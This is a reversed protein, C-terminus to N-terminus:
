ADCKFDIIILTQDDHKETNEEFNKISEFINELAKKPTLHMTNLIEKEFSDLGLFQRKSNRSDTIGDTFLIIRDGNLLSIENDKFVENEYLGLVIDNSSFYSIKNARVVLIPCHGANTFMLLNNIIDIKIMLATVYSIETNTISKFLDNNTKSITNSVSSNQSINKRILGSCLAMVLASAIGHGAVDGIVVTLTSNNKSGYEVIGKKEEIQELSEHKDYIFNYFDGGIKSAPRSFGAIKLEPILPIDVNLLEQHVKQAMNMDNQNILFDKSIQKKRKILSM